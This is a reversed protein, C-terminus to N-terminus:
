LTWRAWMKFSTPSSPPASPEEAMLKKLWVNEVVFACEVGSGDVSTRAPSAKVPKVTHPQLRLRRLSAYGYIWNSQFWETLNEFEKRFSNSVCSSLDGAASPRM